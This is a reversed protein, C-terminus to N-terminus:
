RITICSCETSVDLDEPPISLHEGLNRWSRHVGGVKKIIIKWIDYCIIGMKTKPQRYYLLNTHLCSVKKGLTELVDIEKAREELVMEELALTDISITDANEFDKLGERFHINQSNCHSYLNYFLIPLPM